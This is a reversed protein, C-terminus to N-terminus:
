NWDVGRKARQFQPCPTHIPHIMTRGIGDSCSYACIRWRPSVTPEVVEGSLTCSVDEDANAKCQETLPLTGPSKQPQQNPCTPDIMTACWAVRKDNGSNMPVLPLALACLIPYRACFGPTPAPKPRAPFPIVRAPPRPLQPAPAPLAEAPSQLGFPDVLNVPSNEVYRYFNIGGDFHIPDETIFRGPSASYYRARYYYLSTELDWERGTYRFPNTVGGGSVPAGFSDYTYVAVASGSGDTLSTITGLGDAHYYSTAGNRSMALPEDIGVGQAYKALVSGSADVEEAVGDGDYSYYTTGSASSKQIRRGFPDYNFSVVGGGNPLTISSLRNEFDWAYVTTGSADVKTLTNGNADYTYTASSTATLQNSSNVTYSPSLHSSTRNGVTDYNYSETTSGGQAVQTLQYVLDYTYNDTTSNIHNLKSQRNGVGDVTYTAGDITTAGAKHLVSLLRSLSDYSYDTNIGNPRTLQTRRSLPDYSFGFNGAWSSNLTSLRNLTDYSYTYTSGDPATFGTRNSAADYTYSNTFTQGPLFSYQVTTSTLRGVNDYTFGYTGSADTVQTMRGGAEYTYSVSGGGAPYTKTVLRDLEDYSYSITQGKRDTKATLNGVADYIYSEALTSPFTTQAVRGQPDYAFYTTRGAADTISTLNNENDYAYTTVNSAADTVTLLRDADDYAYLTTRGNQDTTATRRGRADYTFSAVTNDPYTITTLRNGLDYAFTTRNGLADVVATRNGRLDYEYTTVNQQADTVTAVLGAPTYTITTVRSLPDTVSTLQGLTNYAFQTVSAPVGAAPVPTTATLLNGNTDYANTTTNNLPDTATLVQGFSNYTYTWTLTQGGVQVSRTLMNGSGDYTYTTTRGLADTSTLVNGKSDYTKQTTGRVTCSSCGPGASASTVWQGGVMQSSYSSTNSGSDAVQVTTSITFPASDGSYTGVTVRIPGSSASAPVIALIQNESWSTVTAPEGGNFRVTSSSQSSGFGSGTITVTSGAPGAGPSIGTIAPQGIVTFTVANSVAGARLVTVPGTTANTPVSVRLATDSTSVPSGVIGNFDVMTGGAADGFDTGYIWIQSGPAAAPPALSDIVPNM